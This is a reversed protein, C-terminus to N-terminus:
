EYFNKVPYGIRAPNDDLTKIWTNRSLANYQLVCADHVDVIRYFPSGNISHDYQWEVHDISNKSRICLQQLRFWQRYPDCRKHAIASEGRTTQVQGRRDYIRVSSVCQHNAEFMYLRYKDGEM